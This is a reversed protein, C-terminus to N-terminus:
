NYKTTGLIVSYSEFEPTNTHDISYRQAPHILSQDTQNLVDHIWRLGLDIKNIYEMGM